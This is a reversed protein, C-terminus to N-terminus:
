ALIMESSPARHVTSFAWDEPKRVLGHKVPDFHCYDVYRQFDAANRILREGFWRQWTGTDGRRRKNDSCDPNPSLKSSFASKIRQLALSTDTDGSPLTWVAHIHDPLVVMAHCTVPHNQVVSAYAARLMDIGNTLSRAGRDELRVTFFYTGGPVFSQQHKSM